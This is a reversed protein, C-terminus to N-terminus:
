KLPQTYLYYTLQSPHRESAEAKYGTGGGQVDERKESCYMGPAPAYATSYEQWTHGPCPAESGHLSPGIVSAQWHILGAQLVGRKKVTGAGDVLWFEQASDPTDGRSFGLQLFFYDEM